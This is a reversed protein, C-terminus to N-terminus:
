QLEKHNNTDGNMYCQKKDEQHSFIRRHIIKVNCKVCFFFINENTKQTHFTGFCPTFVHVYM